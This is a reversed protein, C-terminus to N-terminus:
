PPAEPHPNPDQPDVITGDRSETDCPGGTGGGVSEFFEEKTMSLVSAKDLPRVVAVRHITMTGQASVDGDTLYDALDRTTGNFLERVKLSSAMNTAVLTLLGGAMCLDVGVVLLQGARGAPELASWPPLLPGPIGLLATDFLSRAFFLAWSWASDVSGTFWTDGLSVATCQLAIALVLLGSAFLRHRAREHSVHISDDASWGAADDVPRAVIGETMFDSMGAVVETGRAAIQLHVTLALLMYGIMVAGSATFLTLWVARPLMPEVLAFLTVPTAGAVVVMALALTATLAVTAGLLLLRVPYGLLRGAWSGPAIPVARWVDVLGDTLTGTRELLWAYERPDAIQLPDAEDM